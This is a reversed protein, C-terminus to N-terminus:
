IEIRRGVNKELVRFRVSSPSLFLASLNKWSLCFFVTVSSKGGCAHTIRTNQFMYSLHPHQSLPNHTRDQNGQKVGKYEVVQIIADLQRILKDRGSHHPIPPFRPSDLGRSRRYVIRSIRGKIGNLKNSAIALQDKGEHCRRRVRLSPLCTLLINM